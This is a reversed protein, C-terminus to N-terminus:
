WGNSEAQEVAELIHSNRANVIAMRAPPSSSIKSYIEEFTKIM